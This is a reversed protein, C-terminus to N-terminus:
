MFRVVKMASFLRGALWRCYLFWHGLRQNYTGRCVPYVATYEIRGKRSPAVYRRCPCVRHHAICSFMTHLMDDGGMDAEEKRDLFYPQLFREVANGKAVHAFKACVSRGIRAGSRLAM